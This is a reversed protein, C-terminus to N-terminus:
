RGDGEQNAELWRTAAGVIMIKDTDSQDDAIGATLDRSASLLRAYQQQARGDHQIRMGVRVHAEQDRM